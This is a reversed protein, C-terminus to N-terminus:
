ATSWCCRSSSGGQPRLGILVWTPSDPKGFTENGGPTNGPTRDVNSVFMLNGQIFQKQSDIPNPLLYSFKNIFFGGVQAQGLLDNSSLIDPALQDPFAQGNPLAALRAAAEDPGIVQGQYERYYLEVRQVQAEASNLFGDALAARSLGNQVAQQWGALGVADPDRGLVEEYLGTLYSTTDPHTRLCEPSTLFDRAVADEGQGSLLANVWFARGVADAPRQLYAAYFQDVQMGRHEASDWVGQAVQLPTGGAQLFGVWGALGAADPTRQLVQDYLTRVFPAQSAPDAATAATPGSQVLAPLAAAPALLSTQGAPAVREELV